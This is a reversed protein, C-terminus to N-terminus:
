YASGRWDITLIRLENRQPQFSYIIRLDGVRRRYKGRLPGSLPKINPGRIPDRCLEEIAEAVREQQRRDLRHFSKQAPTAWWSRYM